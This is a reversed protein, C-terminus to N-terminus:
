IFDPSDKHLAIPDVVGSGMTQPARCDTGYLGQQKQTSGARGGSGLAVSKLQEGGGDGREAPELREGGGGGRQRPGACASIGLAGCVGLSPETYTNLTM